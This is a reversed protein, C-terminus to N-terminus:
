QKQYRRNKWDDRGSGSSQGNYANSPKLYDNVTVFKISKIIFNSSKHNVDETTGVDLVDYLNQDKLFLNIIESIQKRKKVLIKDIFKKHNSYILSNDELSM